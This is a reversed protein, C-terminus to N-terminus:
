DITEHGDFQTKPYGQTMLLLQFLVDAMSEVNDWGNGAPNIKKEYTTSTGFDIKRPNEWSKGM